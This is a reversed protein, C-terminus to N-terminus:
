DSKKTYFRILSYIYIMVSFPWVVLLTIVHSLMDKASEKGERVKKVSSLFYIVSCLAWGALWILILNKVVAM